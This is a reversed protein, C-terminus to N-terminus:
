RLQGASSVLAYVTEFEVPWYVKLYAMQYAIYSYRISHSKSFSYGAFRMIWNFIDEAHSSTMGKEVCCNVFAVLAESIESNRKKSAAKIIRFCDRLKIGGVRHLIQMAQEQYVVVGFTEALIERIEPHPVEWETGHKRDLFDAILEMPGPRYLAYAAALEELRAPKLRVLIDVMGGCEFGFIGETGGTAFIDFVKSDATDSKEIDVEINHREKILQLTKELTSLSTIGLLDIKLLGLSKVAPGEFQTIVDGSQPVTCLPVLNLLPQDGLIVACPHAHFGKPLGELKMGLDFIKKVLPKTEYEQKLEFNDELARQFQSRIQWQVKKALNEAENSPMNFVGALKDILWAPKMGDFAIPVAAEGYKQKLHEIVKSRGDESIDFDMKPLDDSEPNIFREFLLGHKIPDVNCLGLCCGVITSASNGRAGILINHQSAWNCFEWVILLYNSFGKGDLVDIEYEIRERIERTMEPYLKQAGEYVLKRLLQVATLDVPLSFTPIHRTKLDLEVNCRNAIELTLDCAHPMNPLIRRMQEPSKLYADKAAKAYLRGGNIAAIADYADYDDESLFHVDNAIVMGLGMQNAIDILASNPDAAGQPTRGQLEIFFNKEGFMRAYMQAAQLAQGARDEAIFQGILGDDCASTVIIGERYQCAMDLSVGKEFGLSALKLLNKYGQYNEALLILSHEKLSPTDPECRAEMGFILKIGAACAHKYFEFAGFMNGRDTVAVSDMGLEKCRAFLRAPTIIGEFLSYQTHLHLHTFSNNQM